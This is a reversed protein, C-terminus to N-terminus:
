VHFYQILRFTDLDSVFRHFLESFREGEFGGADEHFSELLLVFGFEEKVLDEFGKAFHDACGGQVGEDAGEEAVDELGALDVGGHDDVLGNLSKPVDILVVILQDELIVPLALIVHNQLFCAFQGESQTLPPLLGLITNRLPM